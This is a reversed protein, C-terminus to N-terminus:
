LDDILKLCYNEDDFKCLVVQGGYNFSTSILFLKPVMKVGYLGLIFPKFQEHQMYFIFFLCACWKRRRKWYIMCMMYVSLYWNLFVRFIDISCIHKTIYGSCRWKYSLNLICVTAVLNAVGNIKIISQFCKILKKKRM